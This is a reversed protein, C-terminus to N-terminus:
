LLCDVVEEDNEARGLVLIKLTPFLAAVERTLGILEADLVDTGLVLVHAGCRALEALLAPGAATRDIVEFREDRALARALCERFLHHPDSIFLRLARRASEEGAGSLIPRAAEVEATYGM